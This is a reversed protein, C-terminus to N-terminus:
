EYETVRMNREVWLSVNVLLDSNKTESLECSM